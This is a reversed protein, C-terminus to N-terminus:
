YGLVAIFSFGISVGALAWAVPIGTFLIAIFSVLMAVVLIENTEM